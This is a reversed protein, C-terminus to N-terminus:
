TNDGACLRSNQGPAQESQDIQHLDKWLLVALVVVRRGLCCIGFIVAQIISAFLGWLLESTTMYQGIHHEAFDVAHRPSKGHHDCLVRGARRRLMRLRAAPTAQRQGSKSIAGFRRAMAKQTM